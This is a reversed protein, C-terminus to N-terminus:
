GLFHWIETLRRGVSDSGFQEAAAAALGPPRGRDLVRQIADAFSRDSMDLAREGFGPSIMDAFPYVPFTVVPTGCLMSEVAVYGWEEFLSPVLLADARRMHDQVASTPLPGTFRVTIHGGLRRVESELAAGNRGVLEVTFRREPPLLRVARLAAAVNKRPHSLDGCCVLLTVADRSSAPSEDPDTEPVAPENGSAFVPPPCVVASIGQNALQGALLQTPATVIDAHRYGRLDNRYHSISKGALLMSRPGSGGTHRWTEAVRGRLDHPYFWAAVCVRETMSRAMESLGPHNLHAVPFTEGLRLGAGAMGRQLRGLAIGPWLRAWMAERRTPPNLGLSVVRIAMDPLRARLDGALVDTAALLTVDNGAVAGAIAVQEAYTDIGTLGGDYVGVLVRRVTSGGTM